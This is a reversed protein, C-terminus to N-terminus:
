GHDAVGVGHPQIVTLRTPDGHTGEQLATTQDQCMQLGTKAHIFAGNEHILELGCFERGCVFGGGPGTVPVAVKVAEFALTGTTERTIHDGIPAPAPPADPTEPLPWDNRGCEDEVLQQAVAISNKLIVAYQKAGALEKTVKELQAEMGDIDTNVRDLEIADAYAKSHQRVLYDYAIGM